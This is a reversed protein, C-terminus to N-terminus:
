NIEAYGIDDKITNFKFGGNALHPASPAVM